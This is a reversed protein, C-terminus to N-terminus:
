WAMKHLKLTLWAVLRKKQELSHCDVQVIPFGAKYAMYIVECVTMLKKASGDQPVFVVLDTDSKLEFPICNSDQDGKSITQFSGTNFGFIECPGLRGDAHIQVGCDMMDDDQKVWIAFGRRSVDSRALWFEDPKSEADDVSMMEEPTEERNIDPKSDSDDSFDPGEGAVATPEASAPSGGGDQTTTPQGFEAWFADMKTQLVQRQPSGDSLKDLWTTPLVPKSDVWSCVKLAPGACKVATALTKPGAEPCVDWWQSMLEHRIRAKHENCEENDRVTAVYHVEYTSQKRLQWAGISWEDVPTPLPNGVIIKDGEEMQVGHLFNELMCKTGEIGRQAVREAPGLRKSAAKPGSSPLVMDRLRVLNISSQM